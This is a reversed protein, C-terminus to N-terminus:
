AADGEDGPPLAALREALAAVDPRATLARAAPTAVADRLHRERVADYVRLFHARDAMLTTSECVARWGGLARVADGVAPHSWEPTRTWGVLQLAAQVEEWAAAADPVMAEPRAIALAAERVMLPTPAFERRGLSEVAAEVVEPDLDALSRHWARVSARLVDEDDSLRFSPWHMPLVGVLFALVERETM